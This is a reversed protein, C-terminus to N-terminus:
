SREPRALTDREAKCSEDQGEKCITFRIVLEDHALLMSTWYGKQKESAMWLITTSPQVTQSSNPRASSHISCSGTVEQSCAGSERIPPIRSRINVAILYRMTPRRQTGTCDITKMLSCIRNVVVGHPMVRPPWLGTDSDEEWGFVDVHVESSCCASALVLSFSTWTTLSMM